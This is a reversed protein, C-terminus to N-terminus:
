LSLAPAPRQNGPSRRRTLLRETVPLL